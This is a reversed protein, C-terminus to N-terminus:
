MPVSNLCKDTSTKLADNDAVNLTNQIAPPPSDIHAWRTNEPVKLVKVLIQRKIVVVTPYQCPRRHVKLIHRSRTM